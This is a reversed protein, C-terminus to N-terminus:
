DETQKLHRHLEDANEGTKVRILYSVPKTNDGDKGFVPPNPVSMLLVNNKGSRSTATEITVIVNLLIKAIATDNRVLVQTKAGSIKKLSLMGVGLESWDSDRKFFLKCRTSYFADKEPTSSNCAYLFNILTNCLM